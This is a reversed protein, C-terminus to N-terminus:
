NSTTQNETKEEKTNENNLIAADEKNKDAEEAKKIGDSILIFKVNGETGDNLM